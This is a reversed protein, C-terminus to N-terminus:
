IKSIQNLSINARKKSVIDRAQAIADYPPIGNEILKIAERECEIKFDQIASKLDGM